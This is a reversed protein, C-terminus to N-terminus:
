FVRRHPVCLPGKLILNSTMKGKEDYEEKSIWKQRFVALSALISGGKWALYKRGPMDIIKIKKAPALATLESQLREVIGPLM